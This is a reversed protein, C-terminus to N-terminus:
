VHARPRALRLGKRQDAAIAGLDITDPYCSEVASRVTSADRWIGNQPKFGVLGNFYWDVGGEQCTLM